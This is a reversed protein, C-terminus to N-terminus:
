YKNFNKKFFVRQCECGTKLIKVIWMEVDLNKFTNKLLIAKSELDNCIDQDHFVKVIKGPYM